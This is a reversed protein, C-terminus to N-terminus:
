FTYMFECSTPVFIQMYIQFNNDLLSLTKGVLLCGIVVYIICNEKGDSFIWRQFKYFNLPEGVEPFGPRNSLLLGPCHLFFHGWFSLILSLQSRLTRCLTAKGGQKGGTYFVVLMRLFLEISEHTDDSDTNTSQTPSGVESAWSMISWYISVIKM